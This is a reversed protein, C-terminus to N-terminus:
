KKPIVWVTSNVIKWDGSIKELYREEYTEKVTNNELNENRQNLTVFAADGKIRINWNSRTVKVRQPKHTTWVEDLKKWLADGVFLGEAYLFSAYPVKAWYTQHTKYDADFFAKTEGDITKKIATEDTSQAFASERIGLLVLLITLM